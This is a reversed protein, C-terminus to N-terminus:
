KKVLILKSKNEERQKRVQEQHQREIDMGHQNAVGVLATALVNQIDVMSLQLGTQDVNVQVVTQVGTKTDFPVVILQQASEFPLDLTVQMPIEGPM